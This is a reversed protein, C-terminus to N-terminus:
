WRLTMLTLSLSLSMTAATADANNADAHPAPSDAAGVIVGITSVTAMEGVGVIAGDGV